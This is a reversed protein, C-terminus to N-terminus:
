GREDKGRRKFLSDSGTARVAMEKMVKELYDTIKRYDSYGVVVPYYKQSMAAREDELSEFFVEHLFCVAYGQKEVKKLIQRAEESDRPSFVKIGLARFALVLDEEGIIAVKEFM